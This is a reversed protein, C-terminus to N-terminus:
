SSGGVHDHVRQEPQRDHAEGGTGNIENPYELGRSAKALTGSLQNAASNQWGHSHQFRDKALVGYMLYRQNM